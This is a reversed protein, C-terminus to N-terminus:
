FLSIIPKLFWGYLLGTLIIDTDTCTANVFGIDTLMGALIAPLLTIFLGHVIGSVICGKTGGKLNGIIGATGGAFFNTLMGPLLMPLGITPFLVMGIISGITTSIFGLIVANPSYPFLVPCDLAPIADPVLRMAIGRFAPVIEALLLRVGALLVYVGVTFQLAQLFAYVIYNTTGSYPACAEPGAFLATIIFLPIMIVMVSLYTDQLFEFSKPLTLEECSKSEKFIKKTLSAAGGAVLYGITCLHGLAIDDSGTLERIYPQALAPMLTCVLGGIVGGVLIVWPGNLGAYHGFVVTITSIWLLVQGTLFVYKFKTIRAFLLNFLFICALSIAIESGYGLESMAQGNIAEISPVLGDMHFAPTFINGFYTLASVIVASGASLVMFGLMTKMTGSITEGIGKKQLCLGILAILGIVVSTQTLINNIIFNLVSM